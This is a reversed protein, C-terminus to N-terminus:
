LLSAQVQHAPLKPGLDVSLILYGILCSYQSYVKVTPRPDNFHICMLTLESSFPLAPFPNLSLLLFGFWFLVCLCCRSFSLHFCSATLLESLSIVVPLMLCIFCIGLHCTSASSLSVLYIFIFFFPVLHGCFCTLCSLLLLDLFSCSLLVPTSGM